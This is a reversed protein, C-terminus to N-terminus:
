YFSLRCGLQLMWNSSRAPNFRQNLEFLPQDLIDPDFSYTPVLTQNNIFGEFKILRKRNGPVLLQEGWNKNLLNAANLLELALSCRVSQTAIKFPFQFHFKLDFRHSFPSRSGNREAYQGRRNQLYSNNAIFYALAEKQQEITYYSDKKKLPIFYMNEIENPYPIYILDYGGTNPADGSLTNGDYVFSFPSGSQGTYHVSWNFQRQKISKKNVQYEAYILHGRSFDSIALTTNNRGNIQENLKWHNLPISFNGDYISFANSYSYNMLWRNNKHQMVWHISASYGYGNQHEMNKILIIENYPNSGNPLIPINLPQNPSQIWRQDVGQLQVQTPNININEFGIESLNQFYMWNTGIKNYDNLKTDTELTTRWITPMKIKEAGVYVTGKNTSYQSPFATQGNNNITNLVFGKLQQNNAYHHQIKNGNNSLIGSLWAYPIRGSFIGTGIKITSNILPIFTKIHIRPSAASSLKPLKGSQAGWITHYQQLVPLATDQTFADAETENLFNEGNLRIGAYLNINKFVTTHYNFYAAAKMIKLQALPDNAAHSNRSQNISFDVTNRNQLFNSISYYFFQGHGNTIFRNNLISYDVDYGWEIWHRSNLKSWRNTVNFNSQTLFNQFTEEGAGLMLMGEGDLIRLSPFSQLRPETVTSHHIFAFLLKHQKFNNISKKWEVSTAFYQHSQIKGNNSFQLIASSSLQNNSRFGNSWKVNITIAQKKKFLVDLRLAIKQSNNNETQDFSGIDYGYRDKMTQRFRNLKEIRNTEGIYENTNFPRTISENVQDINIFYFSKNTSIPGSINVGSHWYQHANSRSTTYIEQSAKNKGSRTTMNLAAGTFSGLSADYPSVLLQMQEFSEPAAVLIGTEGMITGTPSLGFLDNQLVGDIYFSNFRYNQSSFSVAGTQDNKIYAQPQHIMLGSLGNGRIPMQDLLNIPQGNNNTRSSSSVLIPKLYNISAQLPINILVDEGLIVTIFNIQMTDALPYIVKLQYNSAPKVQYFGYAGSKNSITEIQQNTGQDTLILVAGIAAKNNFSIKGSISGTTHQSKLGMPILIFGWVIM